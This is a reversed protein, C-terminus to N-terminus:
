QFYRFGNYLLHYIDNYVGSYYGYICDYLLGVMYGVFLLRNNYKIDGKISFLKCIIWPFFYAAIIPSTIYLLFMLVYLWPMVYMIFM